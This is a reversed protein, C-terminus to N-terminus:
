VKLQTLPLCPGALLLVEGSFSTGDIDSDEFGGSCASDNRHRCAITSAACKRRHPSYQAQTSQVLPWCLPFEAMM